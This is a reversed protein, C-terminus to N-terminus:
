GVAARFDYTHIGCRPVACGQNSDFTQDNFNTAGTATTFIGVHEIDPPLELVPIPLAPVEFLGVLGNVISGFTGNAAVGVYLGGGMVDDGLGLLPINALVLGLAGGLNDFILDLITNPDIAGTESALTANLADAFLAAVTNAADSVGVEDRELVWTYTGFVELHNATNALDLLDLSRVGAFTATNKQVGTLVKTTGQQVSAAAGRAGAVWASASNAEGIRVRWAVNLVYAEDIDDTFILCGGGTEVCDNAEDVTVTESSFTWNQVTGTPGPPPPTCAAALAVTALAITLLRVPRVHRLHM